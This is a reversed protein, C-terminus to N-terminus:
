EKRIIYINNVDYEDATVYDVTFTYISTTGVSVSKSIIRYLRNNSSLDDRYIRFYDQSLFQDLCSKKIADSTTIIITSSSAIFQVNDSGSGGVTIEINKFSGQIGFFLNTNANFLNTYTGAVPLYNLNNGDWSDNSL